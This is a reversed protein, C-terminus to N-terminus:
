PSGFTARGIREHPWQSRRMGVLVPARLLPAALHLNGAPSIFRANHSPPGGRRRGGSSVAFM